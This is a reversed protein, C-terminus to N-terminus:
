IYVYESFSVERSITPHHWRCSYMAVIKEQKKYMFHFLELMIPVYIQDYGRIDRLIVFM